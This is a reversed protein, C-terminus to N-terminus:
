GVLEIVGTPLSMSRVMDQTSQPSPVPITIIGMHHKFSKKGGGGQISSDAFCPKTLTSRTHTKTKTM